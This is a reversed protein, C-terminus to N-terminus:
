FMGIKKEFDPEFVYCLSFVTYVYNKELYISKEQFGDLTFFVDLM